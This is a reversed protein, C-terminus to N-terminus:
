DLSASSLEGKKSLYEEFDHRTKPSTKAHLKDKKTMMNDTKPPTPSILM